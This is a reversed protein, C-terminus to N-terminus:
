AALRTALKQALLEAVEDASVGAPIQGLEKMQAVVQASLVAPDVPGGVTGRLMALIQRDGLIEFDTLPKNNVTTVGQAARQARSLVDVVARAGQERIEATIWNKDDSNLPMDDEEDVGFPRTDQEARTEYRASFHAHNTHDDSGHYAVPRFDNDKDYIQGDWIVYNLRCMDRGDLWKAKEGEIVRMVLGHFRQKQTGVGPWPGSSDIDLAHVENKSDADHDRLVDSDEDPTHDSSSTHSSDGISGDAGRDRSPSVANFEARLAVLCPVLIWDSM